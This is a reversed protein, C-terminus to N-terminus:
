TKEKEGKIWERGTKVKEITLIPEPTTFIYAYSPTITRAVRFVGELKEKKVYAFAMKPGAFGDQVELWVNHMSGDEMTVSCYKQLSDNSARRKKRPPKQNETTGAQQGDDIGTVDEDGKSM